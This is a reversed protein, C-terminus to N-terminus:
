MKHLKKHLNITAVLAKEEAFSPSSRLLSVLLPQQPDALAIASAAAEVQLMIVLIVVCGTYSEIGRVILM